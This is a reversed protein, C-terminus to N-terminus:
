VQIWSLTPEDWIYSSINEPFPIPPAYACAISDFTWSDYLKPPVFADFETNYTYGESPFRKRIRGSHSAQVWNTENGFLEKLFYIGSAEENNEDLAENNVVIVRLVTNNEDIEAFHAM